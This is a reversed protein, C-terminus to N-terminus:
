ILIANQKQTTFYKVKGKYQLGVICGGCLPPAYVFPAAVLLFRKSTKANM